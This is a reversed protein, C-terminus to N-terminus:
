RRARVASTATFTSARATNTASGTAGGRRSGPVPIVSTTAEDPVQPAHSVVEATADCAFSYAEIGLRWRAQAVHTSSATAAAVRRRRYRRSATACTTSVLTTTTAVPL